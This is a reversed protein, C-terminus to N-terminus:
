INRIQCESIKKLFLWVFNRLRSYCAVTYRSLRPRTPTSLVNLCYLNQVGVLHAWFLHSFYLCEFQM